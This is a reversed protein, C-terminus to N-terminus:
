IVRGSDTPLGILFSIENNPSTFEEDVKQIRCKEEDRNISSSCDSDTECFAAVFRIKDGELSMM